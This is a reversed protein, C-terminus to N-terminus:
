DNPSGEDLNQLTLGHRVAFEELEAKVEDVSLDDIDTKSKLALDELETDVFAHLSTVLASAQIPKKRAYAELAEELFDGGKELVPGKVAGFIRHIFQFLKKM